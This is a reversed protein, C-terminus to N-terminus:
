WSHTRHTRTGGKYGTKQRCLSPLSAPERWSAFFSRLMSDDFNEPRRLGHHPIGFLHEGVKVPKRGHGVVQHTHGRCHELRQEDYGSRRAPRRVNDLLADVVLDDAGRGVVDARFVLLEDREVFAFLKGSDPFGIDAGIELIRGVGSGTSTSM